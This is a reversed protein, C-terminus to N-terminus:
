ELFGRPSHAKNLVVDVMMDSQGYEKIDVRYCIGLPIKWFAQPFVDILVFYLFNATAAFVTQWWSRCFPLLLVIKM